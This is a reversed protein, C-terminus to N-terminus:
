FLPNVQKRTRDGSLGDADGHARTGPRSLDPLRTLM